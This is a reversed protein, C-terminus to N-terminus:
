RIGFYRSIFFNNSSAGPYFHRACNQLEKYDPHIGCIWGMTQRSFYWNIEQNEIPSDRECAFKKFKRKRYVTTSSHATENYIFRCAYKWSSGNKAKKVMLHKVLARDLDSGGTKQIHVFVLVHKNIDFYFPDDSSPSLRIELNNEISKIFDRYIIIYVVLTLATLIFLIRFCKKKISFSNM